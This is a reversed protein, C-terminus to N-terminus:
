LYQKNCVPTNNHITKNIRPFEQNLVTSIQYDAVM